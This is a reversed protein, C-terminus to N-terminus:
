AAQAPLALAERHLVGERKDGCGVPLVRIDFIYPLMYSAERFLTYVLTRIYPCVQTCAHICVHMLAQLQARIYVHQMSHLLSLVHTAWTHMIHAHMGITYPVLAPVSRRSIFSSATLSPSDPRASAPDGDVYQM